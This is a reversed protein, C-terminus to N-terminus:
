SDKRKVLKKPKKTQKSRSSKITSMQELAKADLNLNYKDQTKILLDKFGNDLNITTNKKTPPGKPLLASPRLRIQM